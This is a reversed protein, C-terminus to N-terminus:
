IEIRGSRWIDVANKVKLIYGAVDNHDSSPAYVPIIEDVTYLHRRNMYEDSILKYWDEFSSQWTGYSRYGEVCKWGKTCRTNGLSQTVRAVGTTGFSSEHMYFALAYVPDLGYKVGYDYLLKGQGCAPSHYYCLVTDIFKASITPQGRLDYPQSPISDSGRSSSFLANSTAQLSTAPMSFATGIFIIVLITALWGILINGLKGM